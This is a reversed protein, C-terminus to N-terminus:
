NIKSEKLIVRNNELVKFFSNFKVLIDAKELYSQVMESNSNIQNIFDEKFEFIKFYLNELYESNEISEQNLKHNQM